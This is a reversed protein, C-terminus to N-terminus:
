NVVVGKRLIINGYLATEGTLVTVQSKRAQEYFDFREFLKLTAQPAANKVIKDYTDWVDPRSDGEVTNMLAYQWDNYFDLPLLELVGALIDPILLGDARIVKQASGNQPYNADGFTIEDGHGMEMMAKVLEPSLIHPIKYLM